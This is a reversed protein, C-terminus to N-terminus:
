LNSRKKRVKRVERAMVRYRDQDADSAHVHWLLPEYDEEWMRMALKETKSLRFEIDNM